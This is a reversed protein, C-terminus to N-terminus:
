FVSGIQFQLREVKDDKKHNIPQAYSLSLPGIPTYWTLGVGASFRLDNDKSMLRTKAAEDSLSSNQDISRIDITKDSVGRTNFVQGGEVFLVPRVQDAWDGKFPVPLIMETGFTALANGGINEGLILSNGSAVYVGNTDKSGKAM